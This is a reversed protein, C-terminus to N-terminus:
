SVPRCGVAFHLHEESAIPRFANWWDPYRWNQVYVWSSYLLSPRRERSNHTRPPQYRSRWFFVPIWSKLLTISINGLWMILLHLKLQLNVRHLFIDHKVPPSSITECHIEALPRNHGIISRHTLWRESPHARTTQWKRMHKLTRHRVWWQRECSFRNQSQLPFSYWFGSFTSALSQGRLTFIISISRELKTCVTM